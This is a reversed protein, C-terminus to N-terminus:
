KIVGHFVRVKIGPRLEHFQRIVGSCSECVPRESTLLINGKSGPTTKRLLDELIKAESDHARRTPDVEKAQRAAQEYDAKTPHTNLQQEEVSTHSVTGPRNIKYGSHAVEEYPKGDVTGETYAINQDKGIKYRTRLEQIKAAQHSNADRFPRPNEPPKQELRRLLEAEKEAMERAEREALVKAEQEAVAQAELQALREAEQQALRQAVAESVGKTYKGIARGILKGAGLTLADVVVLGLNPLNPEVALAAVDLAIGAEFTVASVEFLAGSAAFLFPAAVAGVGTLCCAVGAVACLAGAAFTWLSAEKAKNAVEHLAQASHAAQAEAQTFLIRLRGSVACSLTSCDLLPHWEPPGVVTDVKVDQWQVPQPVCPGQLVSCAGCSSVNVLPVLDADTALPKDHTTVGWNNTATLTGVGAGKDCVLFVGSPVYKYSM